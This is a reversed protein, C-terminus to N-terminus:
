GNFELEKLNFVPGDSCVMRSEGGRIRVACGQCVGAGCAMREELSAQWGFGTRAATEQMAKLMPTPGCAFGKPNELSSIAPIFDSLLDTARGHFGASGDESALRIEVGREKLEDLGFLDGSHRVGWLLVSKKGADALRDVLFFVPAIGLGGSVIMATSFTGGIEFPRGLPGLLNVFDGTKFAAMRSTGKGIRRYLIRVSRKDESIRHISFPRRWFPDWGEATRLHVFQGPLSKMALEPSELDLLFIGAAVERQGLVGCNVEGV